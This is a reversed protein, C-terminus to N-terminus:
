VARTATQAALLFRAIYADRQRIKAKAINNNMSLKSDLLNSLNRVSFAPMVFEDDGRIPNAPLQHQRRSTAFWICDTNQHM